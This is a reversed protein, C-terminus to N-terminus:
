AFEFGETLVQVLDGGVVTRQLLREVVNALDASCSLSFSLRLTVSSFKRAEESFNFDASSLM